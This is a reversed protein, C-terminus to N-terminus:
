FTAPEIGTAEVLVSLVRCHLDFYCFFTQCLLPSLNLTGLETSIFFNKSFQIASVFNVRLKKQLTQNQSLVFAPPTGLVHLDFPSLSRGLVLPARTLLAHTVQGSSPSLWDFSQSIGCLVVLDASRSTFPAIRM